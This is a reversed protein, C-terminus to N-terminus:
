PKSALRAWIKSQSPSASGPQEWAATDLPAAWLASHSQAASYGSSACLRQARRATGPPQAVNQFSSMRLPCCSRPAGHFWLRRMLPVATATARSETLWDNKRIPKLSHFQSTPAALSGFHEKVHSIVLHRDFNEFLAFDSSKHLSIPEPKSQGFSVQFEVEDASIDALLSSFVECIININGQVSGSYSGLKGQRYIVRHPLFWLNPQQQDDSAKKGDSSIFWLISTNMKLCLLSTSPQPHLPLQLVEAQWHPWALFWMGDYRSCSGSSALQGSCCWPAWLLTQWTVHSCFHGPENGPHM